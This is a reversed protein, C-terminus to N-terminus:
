NDSGRTVLSGRELKALPNGRLHFLPVELPGHSDSARLIRHCVQVFLGERDARCAFCGGSCGPELKGGGSSIGGDSNGNDSFSTTVAIYVTRGRHSRQHGLHDEDEAGSLDSWHIQLSPTTPLQNASERGEDEM